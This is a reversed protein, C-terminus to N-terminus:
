RIREHRHVGVGNLLELLEPHLAARVDPEGLPAAPDFLEPHGPSASGDDEDSIWLMMLIADDRLFGANCRGPAAQGTLARLTTALPQEYPCGATGLSALCGVDHAVRDVDGADDHFVDWSQFPPFTTGCGAAPVPPGTLLCGAGEGDPGPCGALPSTTPGGPALIGLNLDEVPPHDPRTDGDGDEPDILERVLRPIQEAIAAQEEAMSPSDDIWVVVDLRAPGPTELELTMEAHVCARDDPPQPECGWGAVVSCAAALRFSLRACQPM